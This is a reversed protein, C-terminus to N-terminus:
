ILQVLSVFSAHQPLRYVQQTQLKRGLITYYRIYRSFCAVKNLFHLRAVRDVIGFAYIPEDRFMSYHSDTVTNWHFQTLSGPSDSINRGLCWVGITLRRSCRTTDLDYDNCASAMPISMPILTCKNERPSPKPSILIYLEEELSSKVSFQPNMGATSHWPNNGREVSRTALYAIKAHSDANVEKNTKLPFKEVHCIKRTFPSLVVALCIHHGRRVFM